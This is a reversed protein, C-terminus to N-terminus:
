DHKPPQNGPAHQRRKPRDCRGSLPDRLRIQVLAERHGTRPILQAQESVRDVPQQLAQLPRKLRLSPEDSIGRVLQSGRQRHHAGRQIDRDGLGATHRSQHSLQVGLQADIEIMRVLQQLAEERQGACLVPADGLVLWTASSGSIVSASQALASCIAVLRSATSVCRSRDLHGAAGRQERPHDLVHDLICHAVVLGVARDLDGEGARVFLLRLQGDVAASWQEIRGGYRLEGLREFAERWSRVPDCSPWPRPREITAATAAACSPLRSSCARGSPPSRTWIVSGPAAIWCSAPAVLHPDQDDLVNGAVGVPDGLAQAVLAHGDVDGVVAVLRDCLDVQGGIVDHQEVAVEGADVAVLEALEDGM